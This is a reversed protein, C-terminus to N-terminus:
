YDVEISIPNMRINCKDCLFIEGKKFQENTMNQFIKRPILKNNKCKPCELKLSMSFELTSNDKNDKSM